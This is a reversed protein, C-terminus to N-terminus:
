GRRGLVRLAGHAATASAISVAPGWAIDAAAVSWPFDRFVAKSTLTFTAYTVLGFVGADRVRVGLTRDEGPRVALHVLGGIFVPYFVAAAAGLATPWRLNM